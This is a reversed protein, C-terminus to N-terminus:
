HIDELVMACFIDNEELYDFGFQEYLSRAAGNDSDVSLVMLVREDMEDEWDRTYGSVARLLAGGVGRRRETAHVLMDAVYVHPTPMPVSPLPRGAGAGAAGGTEEAGTGGGAILPSRRRLQASVAGIVGHQRELSADREGESIIAVFYVQPEYYFPTGGGTFRGRDDFGDTLVDIVDDTSPVAKGSSQMSACEDATASSGQFVLVDLARRRTTVEEIVWSHTCATLVTLVALVALVAVLNFRSTMSRHRRRDAM